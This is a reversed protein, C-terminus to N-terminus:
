KGKGHARRFTLVFPNSDPPRSIVAAWWKSDDDLVYHIVSYPDSKSMQTHDPSTILRRLLNNEIEETVEKHRERWHVRREYPIRVGSISINRTLDVYDRASTVGLLDSLSREHHTWGWVPDFKKGVLNIFDFRGDKWAAWKAPGLIKIQQEAPMRTFLEAGSEVPGSGEAIGSFGLEEWTKLWPIKSCRGSPHEEM